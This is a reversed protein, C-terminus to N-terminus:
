RDFYKAITSKFVINQLCNTPINMGYRDTEKDVAQSILELNRALTFLEM